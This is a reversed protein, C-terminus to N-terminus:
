GGHSLHQAGGCEHRTPASDGAYAAPAAGGVSTAIGWLVFAASFLLANPAYSFLAMTLGSMITAPVIIAKRRVSRFAGRGSVCCYAGCLQWGGDGPGSRRHSMGYTSVALLPVVAFLGGTRIFANMFAIVCVLMYGIQGTMLRLQTIFPPM